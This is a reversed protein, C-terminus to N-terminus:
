AELGFKNVRDAEGLLVLLDGQMLFFDPSPSPTVTDGRIVALVMLQRNQCASVPKGVLTKPVVLEAIERDPTLMMSQVIGTAALDDALRDGSEQVPQVVRDAGVKLLIDRHRDSHAVGIVHRVGLRKLSIIVLTSAEFDDVMTVIVTDYSSIDIEKLAEENTADMILAEQIEDAIDQVMGPDTDVGLVTNGLLVLKRALSSGFRGLGIVAYEGSSKHKREWPISAM